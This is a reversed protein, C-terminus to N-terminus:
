RKPFADIAEKIQDLVILNANPQDRFMLGLQGIRLWGQTGHDKAQAYLQLEVTGMCGADTRVSIVGVRLRWDGWRVEDTVAYGKLRLQDEAYTKAEGLNTWCGGKASDAIFVEITEVVEPNVYDYFFRSTDEDQALAPTGVLLTTALTASLLHKM